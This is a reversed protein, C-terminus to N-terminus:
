LPWSWQGASLLPLGYALSKFGRLAVDFSRNPQARFLEAPDLFKYAPLLFKQLRGERRAHPLKELSKLPFVACFFSLGGLPSCPLFDFLALGSLLFGCPLCPARPALADAASPFRHSRGLDFGCPFPQPAGDLLVWVFAAEIEGMLIKDVPPA